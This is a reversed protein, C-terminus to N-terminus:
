EFQDLVVFLLGGVLGLLLFLSAAELFQVLAIALLLVVQLNASGLFVGLERAIWFRLGFIVLISFITVLRVVLICILLIITFIVPFIAVLIIPLITVLITFIIAFIAVLIPIFLVIIFVFISVVLILVFILVFWAVKLVVSDNLEGIWLASAGQLLTVLLWVFIAISHRITIIGEM